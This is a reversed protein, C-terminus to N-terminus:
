ANENPIQRDQQASSDELPSEPLDNEDGGKNRFRNHTPFAEHLMDRIDGYQNSIEQTHSKSTRSSTTASMSEGHCYWCNYGPSIGHSILHDHVVEPIFMSSNVCQVCPCLIVGDKLANQSTFKIFDIVGQVYERSRRNKKMWSKDMSQTDGVNFHM